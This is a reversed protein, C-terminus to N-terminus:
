RRRSRRKEATTSPRVNAGAREVQRRRYEDNLENIRKETDPSKAFRARLESEELGKIFADFDAEKEM